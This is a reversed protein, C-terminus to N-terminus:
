ASSILGQSESVPFLKVLRRALEAITEFATIRVSLESPIANDKEVDHEAGIIVAGAIGFHLSYAFALAGAHSFDSYFRQLDILYEQGGEQLDLLRVLRDWRRRQKLRNPADHVPFKALKSSFEEFVQSQDDCILLAMAVAEAAHRMQNGAPLPYGAVLLNTSTLVSNFAM